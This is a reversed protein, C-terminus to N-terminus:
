PLPAALPSLPHHAAGAQPRASAGLVANAANLPTLADKASGRVCNRMAADLASAGRPLLRHHATLRRLAFVCTIGAGNTWEAWILTGADDEISTMTNLDDRKFPAPLGGADDIIRDIRMVGPSSGAVTRLYVFNDGPLSTTNALAMRQERQSGSGRAMPMISQPVHLWVQPAPIVRWESASDAGLQRDFPYHGNGCGMLLFTLGCSVLKAFCARDSQLSTSLKM